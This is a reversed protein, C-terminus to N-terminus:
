EWRIRGLKPPVALYDRATVSISARRGEVITEFVSPDVLLDQQLREIRRLHWEHMRRNPLSPYVNASNPEGEESKMSLWNQAELEVEEVDLQDQTGDVDISRLMDSIGKQSKRTKAAARTQKRLLTMELHHLNHVKMDRKESPTGLRLLKKGSADPPLPAPPVRATSAGCGM